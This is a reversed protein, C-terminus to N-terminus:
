LWTEIQNFINKKGVKDSVSSLIPGSFDKWKSMFKELTQDKVIKIQESRKLKDIKTFIICAKLNYAVLWELLNMDMEQIGRRSDILLFIGLLEKRNELFEEIMVQWQEKEKVPGKAYGYGPLDVLLFDSPNASIDFFNILRTKGPTNSVKVLNKRGLVFNILSSKGVNSRGTFAIEPLRTQPWGTKKSASKLFNSSKIKM